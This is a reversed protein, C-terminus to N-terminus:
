SINLKDYTMLPPQVYTGWHGQQEPSYNELNTAGDDKWLYLYSQGPQLEGSGGAQGKQPCFHDLPAVMVSMKLM